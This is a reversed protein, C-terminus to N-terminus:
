AEDRLALRAKYAARIHARTISEAALADRKELAGVIAQHENFAAGAREVSALTTRGLLVLSVHLTSLTKLLYRNHASRYLTQHFARNNDVLRAPDDLLSADRDALERLMAIELPSANRAALAAASGELVERMVYLESIAHADLRKVTLGSGPENGVLGAAELRRLAERVPTRSIELQQALDVERLRAGPELTGNEISRLLHRYAHEARPLTTADGAPTSTPTNTPASASPGASSTESPGASASASSLAAAATRNPATHASPQARDHRITM